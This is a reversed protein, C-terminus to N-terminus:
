DLSEVEKLRKILYEVKKKLFEVEREKEKLRKGLEAIFKMPDSETKM